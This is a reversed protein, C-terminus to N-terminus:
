PRACSSEVPPLHLAPSGAPNLHWRFEQSGSSAAARSDGPVEEPEITWRGEKCCHSEGLGACPAQLDSNKESVRAVDM